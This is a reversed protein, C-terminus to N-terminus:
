LKRWWSLSSIERGTTKDSDRISQVNRHVAQGTHEIFPITSSGIAVPANPRSRRTILRFVVPIHHSLMLTDSNSPTRIIKGRDCVIFCALLLNELSEKLMIREDIMRCCSSCRLLNKMEPPGNGRAVKDQRRIACSHKSNAFHRASIGIIGATIKRMM